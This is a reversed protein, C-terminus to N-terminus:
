RHWLREGGLRQTSHQVSAVDREAVQSHYNWLISIKAIRWGNDTVVEPLMTSTLEAISDLYDNGHLEGAYPLDEYFGVPTGSSLSGEVWRRAAVHDIHGGLGLPAYVQHWTRSQFVDVLRDPVDETPGPAFVEEVPIGLRLPAEEGMLDIRELGLTRAFRCDEDRRLATIGHRDRIEAYPAFASESFLVLMVCRRASIRGSLLAGSLSYAIDDCHPSVLLIDRM